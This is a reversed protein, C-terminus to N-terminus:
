SVLSILSLANSVHMLYMTMMDHLLLSHDYPDHVVALSVSPDCVSIVFVMVDSKSNLIYMFAFSGCFGFSKSGLGIRLVYM